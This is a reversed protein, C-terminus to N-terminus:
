QPTRLALYLVLATVLVFAAVVTARARPELRASRDALTDIGAGLFRDDAIAVLQAAARSASGIAAHAGDLVWREVGVAVEAALPASAARASSASPVSSASSASAADESSPAALEKPRARGAGYRSRATSAGAVGIGVGVLLLGWTLGASTPASPLQTAADEMWEDFSSLGSKGVFRGGFGLVTGLVAALGALTWAAGRAVAVFDSTAAPGAKGEFVVFYARVSAHAGLGMAAAGLVFPIWGPLRGTALTGFAALLVALKPVSVIWSAASAVFWVRAIMPASKALGGMGRLDTGASPALAVLCSWSAGIGLVSVALSLTAASTAGCGAGLMAFGLEASTLYLLVRRLDTARSAQWAALVASAGGVLALVASAVSSLQILVHLRLALHAGLVTATTAVLAAVAPSAAGIRLLPGHLPAQGSRAAAAALLLLCAATVLGVGGGITRSLLLARGANEGRSDNVVLQDRIQAFTLTAGFVGLAMERDKAFPVHSVLYDDLGNGPHIRFSHLGAPVAFKVFPARLPVEGSMLPARADDMFILAGPYSTMTVMGKGGAQALAQERRREEAEEDKHVKADDADPVAAVHVAAFRPSLDPLYDSESWGGGLGWFLAVAGVVFLGGTVRATVFARADRTLGLIACAAVEWALIVVVLGDALIALQTAALLLCAWAMTGAPAASARLTAFLALAVGSVALLIASSMPDLSLDLSVDLQGLRVMRLVHELFFRQGEELQSLRFTSWAAVGFSIAAALLAANAVIVSDRDSSRKKSVARALLLYAAYAAALLPALPVVWLGFALSARTVPGYLDPM